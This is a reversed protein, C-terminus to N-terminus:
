INEVRVRVMPLLSSVLVGFDVVELKVKERALDYEAVALLIPLSELM